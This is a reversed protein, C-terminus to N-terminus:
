CALFFHHVNSSALRQMIGTQQNKGVDHDNIEANWLSRHDSPIVAISIASPFGRIHM